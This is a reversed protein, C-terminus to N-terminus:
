RVRELDRKSGPTGPNTERGRQHEGATFPRALCEAKETRLDSEPEVYGRELARRWAEPFLGGDIAQSGWAALGQADPSLTFIVVGPSKEAVRVIERLDDLWFHAVQASGELTIVVVHLLHRTGIPDIWAYVPFLRCPQSPLPAIDAVLEYSEPPARLGGSAASKKGRQIMHACQPCQGALGAM